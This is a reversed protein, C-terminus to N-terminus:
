VAEMGNGNGNIRYTPAPWGAVKELDGNKVMGSLMTKLTTPNRDDHLECIQRATPEQLEKIAWLIAQRSSGDRAGSMKEEVAHETEAVQKAEAADRQELYAWCISLGPIAIEAMVVLALYWAGVYWHSSLYALAEPIAVGKGAAVLYVPMIIMAALFQVGWLGALGKRLPVPAETETVAFTLIAAGGFVGGLGLGIGPLAEVLILAWDPLSHTGRHALSFAGVYLPVTVLALSGALAKFYTKM